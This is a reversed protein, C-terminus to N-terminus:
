NAFYEHSFESTVQQHFQDQPNNDIPQPPLTFNLPAPKTFYKRPPPEPPTLRPKVEPKTTIEKKPTEAHGPPLPIPSTPYKTSINEVLANKHIQVNLSLARIMQDNCNNIHLKEDSLGSGPETSAHKNSDLTENRNCKDTEYLNNSANKQATEDSSFSTTGGGEIYSSISESKEESSERSSSEVSSNASENSAVPIPSSRVDKSYFNNEEDTDLDTTINGSDVELEDLNDDLDIDNIKIHVNPKVLTSTSVSKSLSENSCIFFIM